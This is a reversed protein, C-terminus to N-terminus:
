LRDLYVLDKEQTNKTGIALIDVKRDRTRRFYLRGKYAFVIEFVTEKGKGRFLKRKIPVQDTRADLQHIMEEAKIQMAETLDKLGSLARDSFSTNKYLTEMRKRLGELDKSQQLSLTEREKALGALQEELERIRQQQRNQQNLNLQLKKELAEVEDFLDAENRAAREQAAVLEAQIADIDDALQSRQGELSLLLDKRAEERKKLAEQEQRHHAEELTQIQTGRHHLIALGALSILLSVALISNAIVTNHGIAVTLSVDLADNLLAFNESAIAMADGIPEGPSNESYVPPYLRRGGQTYIALSITAGYQRMAANTMLDDAAAGIQDALRVQGSLLPQTDGPIQKQLLERYHHELYRELGQIATVYIVPPLVVLVILAKFSIFRM